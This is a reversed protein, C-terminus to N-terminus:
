QLRGKQQEFKAKLTEKLENLQPKIHKPLSMFESKLQDLDSADKLKNEYLSLDEIGAPIAGRIRLANTVQGFANVETAYVQIKKNIWGEYLEGYLSAITRTNTVNLVMPPIKNSFKVVPVREDQGHQNIIKEVTVSKITAVLEESENLNHSGLLMTKNPFLNKWHTTESTEYVIQKAM